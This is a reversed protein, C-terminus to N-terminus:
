NSKIRRFYISFQILRFVNRIFSFLLPVCGRGDRSGLRLSRRDLFRFAKALSLGINGLSQLAQLPLERRGPEHQFNKPFPDAVNAELDAAEKQIRGFWRPFFDSEVFVNRGPAESVGAGLKGGSFREFGIPQRHLVQHDPGPSRGFLPM